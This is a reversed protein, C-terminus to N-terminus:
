FRINIELVFGRRTTDVQIGLCDEIKLGMFADYLFATFFHGIVAGAVV